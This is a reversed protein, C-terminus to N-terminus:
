GIPQLSNGPAISSCNQPAPLGAFRAALWTDAEPLWACGPAINALPTSGEYSYFPDRELPVATSASPVTLAMFIVLLVIALIGAGMKM